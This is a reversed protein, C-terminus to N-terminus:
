RPGAEDSRGLCDAPGDQPVPGFAPHPFDKAPMLFKQWYRAVEHKDGSGGHVLPRKGLELAGERVCRAPYFGLESGLDWSRATGKM